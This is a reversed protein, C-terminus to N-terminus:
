IELFFIAGRGAVITQHTYAQLGLIIREIDFDMEFINRIQEADEFNVSVMNDFEHAGFEMALWTKGTQRAGEIILPKRMSDPKNKWHVLQKYALRKM